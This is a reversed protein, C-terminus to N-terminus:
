NLWDIIEYEKQGSYIIPESYYDSLKNCNVSTNVLYNIYVGSKSRYIFDRCCVMGEVNGTQEVYFDSHVIGSLKGKLELICGIDDRNSFNHDCLIASGFVSAGNNIKFVPDGRNKDCLVMLVSPYNLQVNEGVVIKKDSFLQCTGMFDDAVIIEPAYILVDKLLTNRSIFVSSESILVVNGKLVFGSLDINEKQFLVLTENAFSNVITKESYFESLAIAESKINTNKLYNNIEAKFIPNIELGLHDSFKLDNDVKADVGEFRSEKLKTLPINVGGILSTKGCLNLVSSKDLKLLANKKSYSPKAGVLYCKTITKNNWYASVHYILYAGWTKMSVSVTDNGEHFLSFKQGDINENTALVYAIASEVNEKLRKEKIFSSLNKQQYVGSLLVLGIFTFILFSLFLAYYLAGAKM